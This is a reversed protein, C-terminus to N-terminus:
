RHQHAAICTTATPLLPRPDPPVAQDRVAARLLGYYGVAVGGVLAFVQGVVLLQPNTSTSGAFLFALNM